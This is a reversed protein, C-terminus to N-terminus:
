HGFLVILPSLEPSLGIIKPKSTSFKEYWPSEKLTIPKVAGTGKAAETV